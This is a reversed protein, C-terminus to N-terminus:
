HGNKLNPIDKTYTKFVVKVLHIDKLYGYSIREISGMEPCWINESCGISLRM